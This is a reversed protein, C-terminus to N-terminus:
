LLTHRMEAAHDYGKIIAEEQAMLQEYFPNVQELDRKSEEVEKELGNLEKLVEEQHVWMICQIRSFKVWM